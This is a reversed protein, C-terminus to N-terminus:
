GKRLGALFSDAIDVQDQNLPAGLVMPLAKIVAERDLGIREVERGITKLMNLNVEMEPRSIPQTAHGELYIEAKFGLVREILPFLNRVTYSPPGSYLDEGLCDGLFLVKDGPVYVVTSGPAHDGDVPVIQCTVEGLDLEITGDFGIDPPRIVLGSRDPLELKM